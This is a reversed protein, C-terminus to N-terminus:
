SNVMLAAGLSSADTIGNQGLSLEKLTTNAKLVAGLPSVDTLDNRALRLTKLGENAELGRGLASVDVISNDDLDLEGLTTNAPINRPIREVRRWGTPRRRRVGDALAELLPLAVAAADTAAGGGSEGLGAGTGPLGARGSRGRVAFHPYHPHRAGLDERRPRPGPWSIAAKWKQRNWGRQGATTARTPRPM